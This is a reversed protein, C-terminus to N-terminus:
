CSFATLVMEVNYSSEICLRTYTIAAYLHSLFNEDVQFIHVDQKIETLILVCRKATFNLWLGTENSLSHFNIIMISVLSM